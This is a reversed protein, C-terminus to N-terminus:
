LCCAADSARMSQQLTGSFYGQTEIKCRTSIILMILLLVKFIKSRHPQDSLQVFSTEVLPSIFKYNRLIVEEPLRLSRSPLTLSPRKHNQQLKCVQQWSGVGCVFRLPASQHQNRVTLGWMGNGWAPDCAGQPLLDQHKQSSSESWGCLDFIKRFCQRKSMFLKRATDWIHHKCKGLGEYDRFLDRLLLWNQLVVWNAILAGVSCSRYATRTRLLDNLPRHRCATKTRGLM